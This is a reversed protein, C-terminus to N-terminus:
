RNGVALRPDPALLAAVLDDRRTICLKRYTNSLHLEVTKPTVFLQEAIDRNTHGAAALEAVRRESPTLSAPGSLATRRPRAGAARLEDRVRGALAVAGVTDALDLAQYLPARVAAGHGGRGLAAGLDAM